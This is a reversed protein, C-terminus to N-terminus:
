LQRRAEPHMQQIRRPPDALFGDSVLSPRFLCAVSEEFHGELAPLYMYAHLSDRSSLLGLNREIADTAEAVQALPLIPVLIRFPHAPRPDEALQDYMDCTPSILLGYGFAVEGLYHKAPEPEEATVVTTPQDGFPIAEFVDGSFLVRAWPELWYEDDRPRHAGEDVDRLYSRPAVSGSWDIPTAKSVSVADDGEVLPPLGEYMRAKAAEIDEPRFRRVGSPLRVAPILGREQWRRITNESVGLARAAERVQMLTM